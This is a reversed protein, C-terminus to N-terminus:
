QECGLPGPEEHPAPWEEIKKLMRRYAPEALYAGREAEFKKLAQILLPSVFDAAQICRECIACAALHEAVTEASTPPLRGEVYAAL